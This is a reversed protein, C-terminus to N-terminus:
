PKDIGGQSLPNCRVIRWAGKSYGKLIGDKLVAQRCYESCSPYFKCYGYPYLGKLPGHDFSLTHQYAVIPLVAVKRVEQQLKSYVPNKSFKRLAHGSKNM